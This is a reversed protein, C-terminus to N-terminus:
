VCAPACRIFHQQIREVLQSIAGGVEDTCTEKDVSKREGGAPNLGNIPESALERTKSGSHRHGGSRRHSARSSLGSLRLAGHVVSRRAATGIFTGLVNGAFTEDFSPDLPDFLLADAAEPPLATREGGYCTPIYQPDATNAIAKVSHNADHISVRAQLEASLLPRIINWVTTIYPAANLVQMTMLLEPYYLDALPVCPKFRMLVAFTVHHVTMDAADYVMSAGVLEGREASLRDSRLLAYELIHLNIQFFDENSIAKMFPKPEYIRQTSALILSHNKRTPGDTLLIVAFRAVKNVNPWDCPKYNGGMMKTRIAAVNKARWKATSRLQKCTKEMNWKNGVLFRLVTWASLEDIVGGAAQYADAAALLMQNHARDLHPLPSVAHNGLGALQQESLQLQQQQQAHQPNDDHRHARQRHRKRRRRKTTKDNNPEFEAHVKFANADTPPPARKSRQAVLRM